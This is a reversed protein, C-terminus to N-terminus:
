CRSCSAAVTRCARQRPRISRLFNEDWSASCRARSARNCNSRTLETTSSVRTRIHPHLFAYKCRKSSMRRSPAATRMWFHHRPIMAFRTTCSARSARSKCIRVSAATMIWFFQRRCEQMPLYLVVSMFLFADMRYMCLRHLIFCARLSRCRRTSNLVATRKCALYRPFCALRLASASRLSCSSSFRQAKIRCAHERHKMSMCANSVSRRCTAADIMIWDLQRWCLACHWYRRSRASCLARAAAPSSSCASQRIAAELRSKSLATCSRLSSSAATRM